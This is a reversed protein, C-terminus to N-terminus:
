NHARLWLTYTTSLAYNDEGKVARGRAKLIAFYFSHESSPSRATSESIPRVPASTAAGRTTIPGAISSRMPQDRADDERLGCALDTSGRDGSPWGRPTPQGVLAGEM